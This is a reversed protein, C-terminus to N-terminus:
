SLYLAVRGLELVPQQLMNYLCADQQAMKNVVTNVQKDVEGPRTVKQIIKHKILPQHSALTASYSFAGQKYRSKQLYRQLHFHFRNVNDECAKLTRHLACQGIHLPSRPSTSARACKSEFHDLGEAYV